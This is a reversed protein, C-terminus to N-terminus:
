PNSTKPTEIVVSTPTISIEKPISTVEKADGSKLADVEPKTLDNQIELAKPIPPVSATQADEIIALRVDDRVGWYLGTGTLKNSGSNSYSAGLKAALGKILNPDIGANGQIEDNYEIEYVVDAKLISVIMSTTRHNKNANNIAQKCGASRNIINEFVKDASIQAVTANSITQKINKIFSLKTEAKIKNLYNADLDFSASVANVLEQNFTPSEDIEVTSGLSAKQGCVTDWVGPRDAVPSVIAGPPFLKTAPRLENFGYDNIKCGLTPMIHCCGSLFITTVGTLILKKNM